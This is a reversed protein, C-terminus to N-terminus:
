KIQNVEELFNKAAIFSRKDANENYAAGKTIDDGAHKETFAHVAGSYATFQYDVKAADMEKQFQAVETAPVNPDIAGHLVLVKATIKKADEPNVSSLGGHFSVVGKLPLGMRAMELVTTGGFCYGTASIKTNDVYKSKALEDFAAKARSRMLSRDGSKYKGAQAGAEKNDKPHVGKGYIDAVFAVYGMEALQEARMKVYDSVGMWDHVVVVGPAKKNKLKAQDMVIMGELATDGDKYEVKEVTVKAHAALTFFLAVVLYLHKM